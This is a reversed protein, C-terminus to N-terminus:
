VEREFVGEMRGSSRDETEEFFGWAVLFVFHAVPRSGIEGELPFLLGTVQFEV